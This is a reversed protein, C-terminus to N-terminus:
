INNTSIDNYNNNTIMILKTIMIFKTITRSKKGSIKEWHLNLSEWPFEAIVNPVNERPNLTWNHNPHTWCCGHCSYNFRDKSEPHSPFWCPFKDNLMLNYHKRQFDLSRLEFLFRLAFVLFASYIELMALFLIEFCSLLSSLASGHHDHWFTIPTETLFRSIFKQFFFYVGAIKKGFFMCFLYKLDFYCACM